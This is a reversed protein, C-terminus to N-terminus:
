FHKEALIGLLQGREEVLIATIKYQHLLEEAEVLSAEPSISKPATSAIAKAKLNFFNQDGYKNLARRIDGDTIVGKIRQARDLVVALGLQGRSMCLLVERLSEEPHVVPLEEKRMFHKVKSLLLRGLSGGPHLAAFESARFDKLQILAAALADGMALTATTSAMPAVQLSSAEEKISVALVYDAHQALTSATKGVISVHKLGMKQIHPILQLLEDTEGSNSLSLFVDERRLMGLDGHIAESPHLFFSATGTSSLTAAIKKGIIGSKGMGCVVVRGECAKILYAAKNFDETLLASLQAVAEAEIRFVRKAISRLDQM